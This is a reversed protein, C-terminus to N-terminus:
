SLDRWEHLHIEVSTSYSVPELVQGFEMISAEKCGRQRLVAKRSRRFLLRHWNNTVRTPFSKKTTIAQSDTSVLQGYSNACEASVRCHTYVYEYILKAEEGTNVEVHSQGAQWHASCPGNAARRRLMMGVVRGSFLSLQLSSRRLSKKGLRNCGQFCRTISM